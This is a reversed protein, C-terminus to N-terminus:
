RVRLRYEAHCASCTATVRALRTLVTDALAARGRTHRVVLAVSDFGAHTQEAIAKWSPPLLTEIAPDAAAASGAPALAALLAATDGQAAAAMAGSLAALM